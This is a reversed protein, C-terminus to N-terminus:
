VRMVAAASPTEVECATAKKVDDASHGPAVEVLLLPKGPRVDLVCLGARPELLWDRLESM